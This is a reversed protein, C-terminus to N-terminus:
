KEQLHFISVNKGWFHNLVLLNKISKNVVVKSAIVADPIQQHKLIKAGLWLGFAGATCYDGILHKFRVEMKESFFDNIVDAFFQDKLQDGGIGNVVVDIDQQAINNEHLLNKIAAKVDESNQPAYLTKLGAVRCYSNETEATGLAFFNAGEGQLTGQGDSEFLDLNHILQRKQLGTFQSITAQEQNIEDFGGILIRKAPADELQMLADQLATEFALGRHVYTTNYNNCKMALAIGGSIANYTSGMFFTPTLQKEGNELIEVLFKNTDDICGYGSATIIADPMELQAENTCIKAASLGLRMVRSMRRLAVPHIYQKFDPPICGLTNNHYSTIEPLFESNDFSRQPSICGVGQIFIPTKAHM